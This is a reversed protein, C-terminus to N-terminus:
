DAKKVPHDAEYVKGTVLRHCIEAILERLQKHNAAKVTLAKRSKRSYTRLLFAVDHSTAKYEEGIMSNVVTRLTKIMNTNSTPTEGLEIKRSIASMAYSDDITKPDIGLDIAMQMTMLCNFKELIYMWDKDKGIGGCYKDLKLLDIPREVDDIRRVPVIDDDKKEDKVRISKFSLITVATLMPDETAKCEEFCLKRAKATYDTIAEDILGATKNAETMKGSQLYDNYAKVLDDANQRIKTLDANIEERIQEIGKQEVVVPEENTIEERVQEITKTEM